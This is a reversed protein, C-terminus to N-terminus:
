DNTVNGDGSIPIVEGLFAPKVGSYVYIFDKVRAAAERLVYLPYGAYNDLDACVADADLGLKEAIFLARYLHYRQSVILVRKAQFIDRARYLSDYTSFGAHDMFVDSDPIGASVALDKMVQVENYHETGHDGSMLLKQSTQGERLIVATEVRDRLMPSAEGNEKVGCGLVLICDYPNTRALASANVATIIHRGTKYLIIGNIVGAAAVAIIILVVILILLIKLFRKM